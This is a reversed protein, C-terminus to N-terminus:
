GGGPGYLNDEGDNLEMPSAIQALAALLDPQVAGKQERREYHKLFDGVIRKATREASLMLINLDRQNM